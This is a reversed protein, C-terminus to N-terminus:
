AGKIKILNKNLKDFNWITYVNDYHGGDYGLVTLAQALHPLNVNPNILNYQLSGLNKAGYYNIALLCSERLSGYLVGYDDDISSDLEDREDMLDLAERIRENSMLFNIQADLEERKKKNEDDGFLQKYLVSGYEVSETLEIFNFAQRPIAYIKQGYEEAKYATDTFYAGYGERARNGGRINDPSFHEFETNTGHVLYGKSIFKNCTNFMNSSEVIIKLQSETISIKKTM